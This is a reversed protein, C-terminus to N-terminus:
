DRPSIFIIGVNIYCNENLCLTNKNMILVLTRMIRENSMIIVVGSLNNVYIYADSKM